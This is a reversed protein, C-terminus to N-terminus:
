GSGAGDRPMSQGGSCPAQFLPPAPHFTGIGAYEARARRLVSIVTNIPNISNTLMKQRNTIFHSLSSPLLPPNCAHIHMRVECWGGCVSHRLHFETHGGKSLSAPLSGSCPPPIAMVVMTIRGFASFLRSSSGSTKAGRGAENRQGGGWDEGDKSLDDPVMLAVPSPPLPLPPLLDIPM